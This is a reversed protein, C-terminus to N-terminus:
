PIFLAPREKLREVFFWRAWRAYFDEGEISSLSAELAEWRKASVPEPAGDDRLRSGALAEALEPLWNPAPIPARMQPWFQVSGNEALTLVMRGDAGLGTGKLSTSHRLWGSLPMGSSAEWLRAYGADDGTLLAQGDPSFQCFWVNGRHAPLSFLRQGTRADWVHARRSADGTVIRTGDPSFMARYVQQEHRFERVLKGTDAEWLAAIRDRSATVVLKGDPSQRAGWVVDKHRKSKQLLQGEPWSWVEITGMDCMVVLSRDDPSFTISVARSTNTLTPGIQRGTETECVRLTSPRELVVFFRRSDRAFLVIADPDNQTPQFLPAESKGDWAMTRGQSGIAVIRGDRSVDLFGVPQNLPLNKLLDGSRADHLEPGDAGNCAFWQTDPSLKMIFIGPTNTILLPEPSKMRADWFRVTGDVSATALRQGNNSLGMWTVRGDHQGNLAHLQHTRLNLIGLHGEADGVYLERGDQSFCWAGIPSRTPVVWGESAAIVPADNSSKSPAFTWGSLEGGESGLWCSVIASKGDPTVEAEVPGQGRFGPTIPTQWVLRASAVEWASIRGGDMTGLIYKADPSFGTLPPYAKSGQFSSGIPELTAIDWVRYAEVPAYIAAFKGELSIPLHRNVSHAIPVQKVLEDSNWLSVSQEDDVLILNPSPAAAVAPTEFHNTLILPDSGSNLQWIRVTGDSAATALHRGDALFAFNCLPSNHDLTRDAPVVFSNETLLSLLRTQLAADDPHARSARAFWALAAATKGEDLLSEADLWERIFLNRKLVRNAADAEQRSSQAKQRLDRERKEARRTKVADRTAFILGAVLLLAVSAGILFAPRNRQFTKQLLYLQSPPRAAVPEHSLHRQIDAALASATEYRRKREKEMAKLVIWDLDGRLQAITEKLRDHRRNAPPRRGVAAQSQDAESLHPPPPVDGEGRTISKLETALRTSPRTPEKERIAKRLADIGSKIWTESEFPPRGTLLEYLLVGLSYIDTRTDVDDANQDAQEPSMYAPTGIFMEFRTFITQDTLRVDATAKAIGFDIVKPLPTGDESTVLVNSPKLDRHIIGKQHAHQVAQCVQVFLKLRETISLKNQECFDTIKTGRVLEMVFFPRGLETAGADLVRAIGPHDMLALAQREAEFRAIMSATDMGLKIVKLAVQRRVPEIQEALYVIGCGGEGLKQLLKYRGIRDGAQEVVPGVLVLPERNLDALFGGVTDESAFLEELNSRLTADGACAEDLFAIRAQADQIDSAEDFIARLSKGPKMM